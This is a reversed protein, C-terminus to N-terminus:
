EHSWAHQQAAEEGTAMEEELAREAEERGVEAEALAEKADLLEDELEGIYETAREAIATVAMDQDNNAGKVALRLNKLAIEEEAAAAAVEEDTLHPPSPAM